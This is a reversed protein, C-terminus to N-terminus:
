SLWGQSRAEYIAEARSSVKLKSYIRRVFTRVTFHSLGMLGAIEHATYGKTIYVLVEQERQSLPPAESVAEPKGASAAATARFRALVKRAIIPSIPSGGNALSRIEDGMKAPSSDKLLYGTAGAEISQMVHIEDGFNTSVMISCQPWHRAAGRIVAIGSGDPLGLDVLLVDAPPGALMALGEAQTGAQVTLRMDPCGSVALDLARRFDPDDEVIAVRIPDTRAHEQQDKTM